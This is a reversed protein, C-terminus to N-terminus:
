PRNSFRVVRSLTWRVLYSDASSAGTTAGERSARGGERAWTKMSDPVNSNPLRNSISPIATFRYLTRRQLSM